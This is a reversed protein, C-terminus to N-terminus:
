STVGMGIRLLNCVHRALVGPQDQEPLHGPMFKRVGGVHFHFVVLGIISLALLHSDQDPDLEGALDHVAIFLDKFVYEALQHMRKEDADLLVWQTLRLFKKDTALLIASGTVFAELRVRAPEGSDLIEKLTASKGQFEYAMADLYLQEKDSFHYYLAAPTLGVEAAVERM